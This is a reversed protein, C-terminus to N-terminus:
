RGSSVLDMLFATVDEPPRQTDYTFWALFIEKRDEWVIIFFGQGGTPPFFWADSIAANIEFNQNIGDTIQVLFAEEFSTHYVYAAGSEDELTLKFGEIVVQDYSAGPQPLGLSTDNWMTPEITKIKVPDDVGLRAFLDEQAVFFVGLLDGLAIGEPPEGDM